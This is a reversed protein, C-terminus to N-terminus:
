NLPLGRRLWGPGDKSGAMGEGVHWVKTFGQSQLYRQVQATRSGTRCILVIPANRDNDVVQLVEHMFGEPGKPHLMNIRLAGKAVGTQRWEEPRRIDILTVQGAEIAAFAQPASFVAGPGTPPLAQAARTTLPVAWAAVGLLVLTRRTSGPQLLDACYNNMEIEKTMDIDSRDSVPACM